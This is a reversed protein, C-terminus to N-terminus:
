KDAKLSTVAGFIHELLTNGVLIQDFLQVLGEFHGEAGEVEASHLPHWLEVVKPNANCELVVVVLQRTRDIAAKRLQRPTYKTPAEGDLVVM